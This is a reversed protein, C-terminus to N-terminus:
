PIPQGQPEKGPLDKGVIAAMTYATVWLSREPGLIPGWPPMGKDPVGSEVTRLIDTAKNGHIWYRDTLNPGIAGEGQLGHCAACTTRWVQEGATLAEPDRTLKVIAEESRPNRRAREEEFAAITREHRERPLPRLSATHYVFWYLFSFVITGVLTALWWNPLRNDQEEIDDYVHLVKDKDDQTM